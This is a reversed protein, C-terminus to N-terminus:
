SGNEAWLRLFAIGVIVLSADTIGVIKHRTPILYEEACLNKIVDVGATCTQCGTDAVATVLEERTSGIRSGKWKAGFKEHAGHMITAAVKLKPPPAPRGPAFSGNNWVLHPQSKRNERVVSAAYYKDDSVIVARQRKARAAAKKKRQRAKRMKKQM